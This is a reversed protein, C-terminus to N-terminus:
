IRKKLNDYKVETWDVDDNAADKNYYWLKTETDYYLLGAAWKSKGKRDDTNGIGHNGLDHQMKVDEIKSNTNIWYIVCYVVLVAILVAISLSGVVIKEPGGKEFVSSMWYLLLGESISLSFILFYYSNLNLIAM